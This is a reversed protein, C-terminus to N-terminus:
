HIELPNGTSKWHSEVPEGYDPLSSTVSLLKFVTPDLHSLYPILHLLHASHTAFCLMTIVHFTLGSLKMCESEYEQVCLQKLLFTLNLSLGLHLCM